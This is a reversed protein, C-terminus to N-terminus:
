YDIKSLSQELEYKIVTHGFTKDEKIFSTPSKFHFSKKSMCHLKETSLKGRESKGSKILKLNAVLCLFILSLYYVIYLSRFLKFHGGWNLETYIISLFLKCSICIFIVHLWLELVRLILKQSMFSGPSTKEYDRFHTLSLNIFPILFFFIQSIRVPSLCLFLYLCNWLRNFWFIGKFLVTNLRMSIIKTLPPLNMWFDKESM